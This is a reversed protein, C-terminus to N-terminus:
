HLVLQFINCLHKLTPLDIVKTLMNAPNDKPAVDHLVVKGNKLATKVFHYKLDIHKTRASVQKNQALVKAALSDIYIATAELVVKNNPLPTKHVMERLLKRMCCTHKACDFLAVYKAEGSSTSVVTQKRTRWMVPAGNITMMWGSTYKKTEQCGEWDSDVHATLTLPSQSGLRPYTLGYNETGKVYRLVRKDYAMHRKAPAHVQRALVAISFSLDPRTCIALYLLSGIIFRYCKHEEENLLTDYQNYATVIAHKPLPTHVGNM